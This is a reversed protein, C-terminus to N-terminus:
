MVRCLSSLSTRVNFFSSMAAAAGQDDAAEVPAEHRDRLEVEDCRQDPELEALRVCDAAHDVAQDAGCRDVLDGLLLGDSPAPAAIWPRWRTFSGSRYSRRCPSLGMVAVGAETREEGDGSWAANAPQLQLNPCAQAAARPQRRRGPSLRDDLHERLGALEAGKPRERLLGPQDPRQRAAAREGDEAM